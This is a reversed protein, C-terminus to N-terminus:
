QPSCNGVNRMECYETSEGGDNGGRQGRCIWMRATSCDPCLRPRGMYMFGRLYAFTLSTEVRWNLNEVARYIKWGTLEMNTMAM